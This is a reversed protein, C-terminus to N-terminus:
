ENMSRKTKVDHRTFRNSLLECIRGARTYATNLENVFYVRTAMRPNPPPDLISGRSPRAPSRVGGGLHSRALFDLRWTSSFYTKNTGYHVLSAKKLEGDFCKRPLPCLGEGSGEEPPSFFVMEGYGVIGTRWEYPGDNM